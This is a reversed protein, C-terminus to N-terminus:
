KYRKAKILYQLAMLDEFLGITLKNILNHVRKAKHKFSPEIREIVFYEPSFLRMASKKTFFRLHTDDLVDNGAYPWDKKFLLDYIVLINRVNPISAVVYGNVKLFDAVEKLLTWPDYLHELIDGLVIYDFYNKDFPLKLHEIDACIVNDMIEKAAKAAEFDKEIGVTEIAKGREKLLGSTRGTGCGIDLIKNNGKEVFDIIDLRLTDFYTRNKTFMEM